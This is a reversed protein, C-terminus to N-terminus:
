LKVGCASCYDYSETFGTYLTRAHACGFTFDPTELSSYPAFLADLSLETELFSSGIWTGVLYKVMYFKTGHIVNEIEIVHDTRRGKFRDGVKYKM